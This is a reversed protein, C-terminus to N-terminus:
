ADDQGGTSNVIADQIEAKRMSGSVGGVGNAKAYDLLEAKTMDGLDTGAAPTVKLPETM